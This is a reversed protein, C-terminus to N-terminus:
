KEIHEEAAGSGPARASARANLEGARLRYEYLLGLGIFIPVASLAIGVFGGRDNTSIVGFFPIMGLGGALLVIGWRRTRAAREWADGVIASVPMGKEIARIREQMQLHRILYVVILAGVPIIVLVSLMVIIEPLGVSRM